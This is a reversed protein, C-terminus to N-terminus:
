KLDGEVKSSQRFQLLGFGKWSKLVLYCLEVILNFGSEIRMDLLLVWMLFVVALIYCVLLVQSLGLKLTVVQSTSQLRPLPM